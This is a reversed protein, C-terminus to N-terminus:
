ARRTNRKGGPRSTAREVGSETVVALPDASFLGPRAKVLPHDSEYAIGATIRYGNPDPLPHEKTSFVRMSELAYVISTAM